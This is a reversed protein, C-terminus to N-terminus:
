KKIISFEFHVNRDNMQYAEVLLPGCSGSGIGSVKYDIRVNAVGNKELEFNHAKSSLEAASYESVNFEFGQESVFEYAGLQMYKTNYHNGHEQPKIYDVYEKEATSEYMGMKSGNHMDIYSEYPGYGFYRFSKEDTTFEFGLRPLFTRQRDFEGDLKVDIRGDEFFTYSATYNFFNMRSVSALGGKVTITNANIETSYVKNHMKNYNEDYWKNKIFRDNDTPAKWISLKLPSNIYGNM